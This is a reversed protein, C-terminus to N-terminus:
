QTRIYSMYVEIRTITVTTAMVVSAAIMVILLAIAVDVASRVAVGLELITTIAAVGGAPAFSCFSSPPLSTPPITAPQTTANISIMTITTHRIINRIHYRALFFLSYVVLGAIPIIKYTLLM